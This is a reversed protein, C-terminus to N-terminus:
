GKKPIYLQLRSITGEIDVNRNKGTFAEDVLVRLIDFCGAVFVIDDSSPIVRGERFENLTASLVTTLRTITEYGVTAAMGKITHAFRFIEFLLERDSPKEHLRELPDKVSNLYEATEAFFMDKILTSEQDGQRIETIAGMKSILEASAVSMEVGTAVGEVLTKVGAFCEAIVGVMDPTIVTKNKHLKDLDKSMEQVLPTITDFGMTASMSKLTHAARFLEFLAAADGPNQKLKELSSDASDMHEKAEAFFIDKFKDFDIEYM